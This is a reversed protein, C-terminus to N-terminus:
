LSLMAVQVRKRDVACYIQVREMMRKQRCIVTHKLHKELCYILSYCFIVHILKSSTM